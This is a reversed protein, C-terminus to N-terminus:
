EGAPYGQALRKVERHSLKRIQFTPTIIAWGRSATLLSVHTPVHLLGLVVGPM